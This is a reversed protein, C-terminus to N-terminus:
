EKMFYQINAKRLYGKGFKPNLDICREADKLGEPFAGLKTYSAARNSFLKFAEPNEEPPGRKLAETYHAVADAYRAEKFATNGKEREQECLALDVYARKKADEIAKECDQLKKLTEPNRCWPVLLFRPRGAPHVLAPQLPPAAVSLGHQVSRHETLSKNFVKLAEELEGKKVLASGKRTLARAILKFDARLERGREVAKDCDAICDDYRGMELYVAARNSLFSIDTDDM